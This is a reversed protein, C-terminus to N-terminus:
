LVSAPYTCAHKKYANCHISICLVAQKCTTCPLFLLPFYAYSPMEIGISGAWKCTAKKWIYSQITSFSINSPLVRDIPVIVCTSM